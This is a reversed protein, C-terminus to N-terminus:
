REGSEIGGRTPQAPELSLSSNSNGDTDYLQAEVLLSGPRSGFVALIGTAIDREEQTGRGSTGNGYSSSNSNGRDSAASLFM